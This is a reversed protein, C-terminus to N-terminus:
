QRWFDLAFIHGRLELKMKVLNSSYMAIYRFLSSIGYSNGFSSAVSETAIERTLRIKMLIGSAVSETATVSSIGYSNSLQMVKM